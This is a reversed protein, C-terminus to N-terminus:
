RGESGRLGYGPRYGDITNSARFNSPAEQTIKAAFLLGTASERTPQSSTNPVEVLLLEEKNRVIM